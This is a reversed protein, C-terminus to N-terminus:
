DPIVAAEAWISILLRSSRGIPVCFHERAGKKHGQPSSLEAKGRVSVPQGELARTNKHLEVILRTM